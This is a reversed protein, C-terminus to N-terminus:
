LRGDRARALWEFTQPGDNRAQRIKDAAEASSYPPTGASLDDMVSALAEEHTLGYMELMRKNVELIRGTEADHIFIADSVANFIERFRSESEPLAYEDHETAEAQVSSRDNAKVDM